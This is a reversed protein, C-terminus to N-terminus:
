VVISIDGTQGRHFRSPVRGLHGQLGGSRPGWRISGNRYSTGAFTDGGIFREYGRMCKDREEQREEGERVGLGRLAYDVEGGGVPGFEFGGM